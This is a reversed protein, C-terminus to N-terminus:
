SAQGVRRHRFVPETTQARRTGFLPVPDEVSDPNPPAAAPAPDSMASVTKGPAEGGQVELAEEAFDHCAAIMLELEGSIDQAQRVLDHLHRGAGDSGAKAEALASQMDDVQASLVAIAGGIGHDFSTLRSLRRSLILCYLAAGASALIMLIDAAYALIQFM